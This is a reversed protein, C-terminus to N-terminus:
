GGGSGKTLAEAATRTEAHGAKGMRWSGIIGTMDGLLKARDYAAASTYARMVGHFAHLTVADEGRAIMQAAGLEVFVAKGNNGIVGRQGPEATSFLEEMNEAAANNVRVLADTLRTEYREHRERRAIWWAGWLAIAGGVVTALLTEGFGLWDWGGAANAAAEMMRM